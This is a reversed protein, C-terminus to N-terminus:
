AVRGPERHQVAAVLGCGDLRYAYIQCEPTSIQRECAHVVLECSYARPRVALIQPHEIRSAVKQGGIFPEKRRLGQLQM